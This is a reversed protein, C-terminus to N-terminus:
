TFEGPNILFLTNSCVFAVLANIFDLVLPFKYAGVGAAASEDDVGERAANRGGDNHLPCAM